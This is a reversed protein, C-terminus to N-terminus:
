QIVLRKVSGDSSRVTYVGPALSSVEFKNANSIRMVIVGLNNTLVYDGKRSLTVDIGYTVPNPYLSFESASFNVSVVNSFTTKGDFDTQRLRYYSVDPLPNEDIFQYTTASSKSGAGEIKGLNEFEIGNASRQVMFYDNNLESATTWNVQVHDEFPEASFRILEVPLPNDLSTSGLTIPSFSTIPGSSIVTGLTANGTTGGNGHNVWAAGDWRMVRLDTIDTIYPGVCDPSNWSLTVSVNSGGVVPNRDLTWYECSSVTVIGAPYTSPGGFAQSAKFYEATFYHAVNTPATIAIARYFGGDGTPFSFADNGTKRVPGDIHSSNSGGTVTANDAFNLYNLSTTNIIGATFTATVTVSADTNLTVTGGSKNMTLRRFIPSATGSKNISQNASGAFIITGNNTGFTIATSGNVTVDGRFTSAVNYAPSLTGNAQNFTVNGTFDDAAGNAFRFIGTGSNTFTTSGGFTNGGNSNDTSAGTKTISNTTGNLTVGELLVSPSSVTLGGNWITATGCRFTASGTLVLNQATAGAQTFRQFYLAGATFGTGGVSITRGSALTAVATGSEGFYVGTGLTSNVQINGNYNTTGAYGTRVNSSGTNTLILDNNYTSGSGLELLLYNSGSCILNTVGNFTFGGTTRLYGSGSNQITATSNFLAGGSSENSTAGTKELHATNNYTGSNIFLQPARFDVPGNFTVTPGVVLGATGTFVLNQATAGSQTFRRLRLEGISFGLGGVSITRGAALTATGGGSESFYIGGGFTSNVIINGNFVTGPFNDAMRITSSGTNTLTLDGNFTDLATLAFRFYGSGSNAITTPGNFTNGGNSDNGTAGTKELYTTGNYIAGNLEFQPARFDVDGNFTSSPGIRLLATGTLVLSLLPAPPNSQTFRTLRLQGSSFGLGGVNLSSSNNLTSTGGAANSFYIGASGLTSNLTINGNFQNGASNHALYILSSGTNTITLADNFIDPAANATLLYGAGSNILSTIGNFTNGGTGANDTAGKKELEADGNFVTGNLLLQPARFVVDGDFESAPGLTLIAIGTLDLTQATPGDQSFRILRIDGSIVGSSGVGITRGAALTSTGTANNGFYVGGGFTSNLEIDGNFQNGASNDALRITSSGSNTVILDSNFIDPSTAGTLLYASGSNVITTLQNFVNGGTGDNAGSPSAGSKELYTVGNYTAGNLLLQPSVFTVDGDFASNPGIWLRASGTLTLSQDFAAGVQSFRRLRLDGTSFGSGGLQLFGNTFTSAGTANNSFLIGLASGTNNLIIDNNFENGAVNHALYIYNSGTNTITLPGNFIDPSTNATLLYGSSSAALTTSGNFINGGSGDDNTPGSKELYTTNNYTAGNLFLRPAIFTVLGDFSSNPGVRLISTGTLTLNEALAGIQTFRYLNLSGSSYTGNSIVGTLTSSASANTNFTIGAAGGSNTVSINGNYTATGNDGMYIVTAASTNTLNIAVPGSFVASSGTGNLFRHNSQISGGCNITLTGTVSLATNTGADGILYSWPDSGGTKNSNLTLDSNFTTTQGGHSYAFYIRYSGTNNFTTNSLFQDRTGNGLLLYGSGSNTINTVGTFINGGSGNDDGAGTKELTVTGSYTCGNLQLRPSAFNVNGGFASSPGVILTATGSLTLNQATSGTQTFRPLSLTGVSFGSGGITITKTDALTASGAVNECFQVGTGNTSNVVINENFSTAGLYAARVYSTGTNTFTTVGNYTSGSVLELLLDASGSNTINAAGNFINNGNTRLVGSGSNVITSTSSFINNGLGTNNTAGTKELYATGTFTTGDLYLQPARLDVDGGFTSAPGVRLISSGTLLLTTAPAAGQTFSKFTLTGTSFTGQTISFGASQNVTGSANGFYIGSGSTSTVSINGNITVAGDKAIIIGSAANSNTCTLTVNGNITASCGANRAIITNVAGAANGGHNIVLDGNIQNGASAIGIQVRSTGTNNITLGGNFIDPNTNAFNFQGSSSNTVTTLGTFTNGGTSDDDNAGTKELISSGGVSMGNLFIRPARFDINGTFSSGPGVDLRATGTLLITQNDIAGFRELSLRGAPFAGISLTRGVALTSSASANDNFYIESASGSNTIAINGNYTSVGNVGMQIDTAANTNTVNITVSGGFTASTGTGQLFRHNSQLTGACNITFTGSISFSTNTGENVLFSWADAGGSKNTNLTLDTFTTTQGGHNHAFYFRYSGNNNFTTPGNFQDRNVNGLLIWGGGLNTVNTTGNFVNNGSSNDNNNDTKTITVNGNFTSGNFFVRGTSGNVAAGFTTGSFTTTGTTNLTVSGTAGGNNITGTAFTNTGTTTLDFGNLDITGTYGNVTIGAVNPAIDLQCNGLGTANFIVADAPGPVGAPSWNAGNNWNSAGAAIWTKQAFVGTSSCTIWFILVTLYYFPSKKMFFTVVAM